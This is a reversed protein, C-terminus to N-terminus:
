VSRAQVLSLCESGKSFVQRNVAHAGIALPELLASSDLSLQKTQILQSTPVSILERLGGDAHVGLVKLMECCNTRERRCAICKGCALYPIIAVQDGM